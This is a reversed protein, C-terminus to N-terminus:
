PMPSRPPKPRTGTSLPCTSFARTAMQRRRLRKGSSDATEGRVRRAAARLVAPTTVLTQATTLQRQLYDLSDQGSEAFLVAAQARYTKPLLLSVGVATATALVVILLMLKVSRRLADVRRQLEIPEDGGVDRVDTRWERQEAM